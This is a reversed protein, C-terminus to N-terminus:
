QLNIDQVNNRKILINTILLSIDPVPEISSHLFAGHLFHCKCTSFTIKNICECETCAIPMKQCLGNKCEDM